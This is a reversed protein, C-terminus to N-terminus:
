RGLPNSHEDAKRSSDIVTGGELIFPPQLCQCLRTKDHRFSIKPMLLQVTLFAAERELFGDVGQKIDVRFLVYNEDTKTGRSPM